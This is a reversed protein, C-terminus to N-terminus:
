IQWLSQVDGNLKERGKLFEIEMLFISGLLSAGARECLQETARATGGTALVDDIILVKDDAGIDDKHMELTDEGYELAYSQAFKERPLKGPKRVLVLGIDRVQSIAAALIFGRSEPALLKTTGAPIREALHHTLSQFAQPDSLIPTIDKFLIGEKPFGPIDAVKQYIDELSLLEAM